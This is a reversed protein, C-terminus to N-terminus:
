FILLLAFLDSRGDRYVVELLPTKGPTHDSNDRLFRLSSDADFCAWLSSSELSCYADIHVDSNCLREACEPNLQAITIWLRVKTMFCSSFGLLYYPLLIMGHRTADLINPALMPGLQFFYLFYLSYDSILYHASFYQCGLSQLFISVTVFGGVWVFIFLIPLAHTLFRNQEWAVWTRLTMIAKSFFVQSCTPCRDPQIFVWRGRCGPWVSDPSIPRMEIFLDNAWKDGYFPPARVHMWKFRSSVSLM